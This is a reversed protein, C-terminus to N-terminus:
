PQMVQEFVVLNGSLKRITERIASTITKKGTLQQILKADDANVVYELRNGYVDKVYYKITKM